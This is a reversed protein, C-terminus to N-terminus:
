RDRGQRSPADGASQCRNGPRNVPRHHVETNWLSQYFDYAPRLQRLLSDSGNGSSVIGFYEDNWGSYPGGPDQTYSSSGPGQYAYWSDAFAHICAGICTGTGTKKNEALKQSKNALIDAYHNQHWYLQQLEDPIGSVPDATKGYETLMVPRDFKKQLDTWLTDFGTRYDGRFSNVGIVDVDPLCEAYLALSTANHDGECIVVPRKHPDIQKIMVALENVFTYYERLYLYANCQGWTVINNENGLVWMLVYAKDCSDEVMAQVSKRINEKHTENLYDCGEEWTTGSGITYAGVFSGMLVKIGYNDNLEQLLFFNVPHDYQLQIGPLIRYINGLLSNNSPVHYLRMTNVGMDKLIQFDGLVQETSDLVNNKNEDVWTEYAFDNRLDQNDDVQTWSRLTSNNSDEGIKAPSYTIGQIFYPVFKKKVPDLIQLEWDGNNYKVVKVLDGGREEVVVPRFPAPPTPKGAGYSLTSQVGLFLSMLFVAVTRTKLMHKEKSQNTPKTGTYFFLVVFALL